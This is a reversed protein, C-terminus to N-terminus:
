RRLSDGIINLPIQSAVEIVIELNKEDAKPAYLESIEHLLDYLNFESFEELIDNLIGLLSKSASQIKELANRQIPRLESDLTISLLGLIANLPTRIEHSMNALFESKSKALAEAYAKAEFLMREIEKEKSIDRMITSLLQPNGEKDRHVTLIQSVPIEFNDVSNLVAHEGKWFGNEL